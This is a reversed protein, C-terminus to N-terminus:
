TIVTITKTYQNDSENSEAIAGTSDAVIRLTHTGAALTGLSSDQAFAYSNANLPPDTYWSNRLINDVYLETYFRAGTPATGINIVAWDVYFTDATTLGTGDTNTGTVNSVVIKDSWGSPQYPTLNPQAVGIQPFLLISFLTSVLGIYTKSAQRM